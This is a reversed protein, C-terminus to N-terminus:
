KSPRVTRTFHIAVAFGIIPKLISVYQSAPETYTSETKSIFLAWHKSISQHSILYALNLSFLSFSTLLNMGSQPAASTVRAKDAHSLWHRIARCHPRYPCLSPLSTTLPSFLYCMTVTSRDAQTVALSFTPCLAAWAKQFDPLGKAM